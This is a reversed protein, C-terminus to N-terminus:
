AWPPRVTGRRPMASSRTSRASDEGRRLRHRRSRPRRRQGPQVVLFGLDHLVVSFRDRLALRAQTGFFLADGGNWDANSGPVSQYMFIPRVETLAAPGRLLVAHHGALDARRLLPREPLRGARHRQGQRGWEAWCRVEGVVPQGIPSRNVIGPQFDPPPVTPGGPRRSGATDCRAARLRCPIATARSRGRRRVDPM